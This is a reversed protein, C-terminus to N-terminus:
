LFMNEFSKRRIRRTTTMTRTTKPRRRAVFFCAVSSSFIQLLVCSSGRSMASRGQRASQRQKKALSQRQSQGRLLPFSSFCSRIYCMQLSTLFCFGPCWHVLSLIQDDTGQGEARSKKGERGRARQSEKLPREQM